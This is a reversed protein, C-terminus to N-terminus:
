PGCCPALLRGVPRLPSPLEIRSAAMLLTGGNLSKFQYIVTVPFDSANRFSIGVGPRDAITRRRQVMTVRLV